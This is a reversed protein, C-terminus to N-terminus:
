IKHVRKKKKKGILFLTQVFNTGHIETGGGNERFHQIKLIHSHPSIPTDSTNRIPPQYFCLM